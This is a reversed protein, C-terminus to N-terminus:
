EPLDLDWNVLVGYAYELDGIFDADDVGEALEQLRERHQETFLSAAANTADQSSVPRWVDYGNSGAHEKLKDISISEEKQSVIETVTDKVAESEKWPEGGQDLISYRVGSLGYGCHPCVDPVHDLSEYCDPCTWATGNEVRQTVFTGLPMEVEEQAKGQAWSELHTLLVWLRSLLYAEKSAENQVAWWDPEALKALAEAVAEDGGCADVIARTLSPIYERPELAEMEIGLCKSEEAWPEGIWVGHEEAWEQVSTNYYPDIEYGLMAPSRGLERVQEPSIGVRHMVVNDGFYRKFQEEAGGQVPVHGYYDHDSLCFLHLPSEETVKYTGDWNRLNDTILAEVGSFANNGSMALLIGFGLARAIPQFPEFLGQKEIILIGNLGPVLPEFASSDRSADRMWLKEYTLGERVLNALVASHGQSYTRGWGAKPWRHVRPERGLEEKLAALDAKKFQNKFEVRQAGEVRARAASREDDALVVDASRICYQEFTQSALKFGMFERAKSFYWRQRLTALTGDRLPGNVSNLCATQCIAYARLIAGKDASRGRWVQLKAALDAGQEAAAGMEDAEEQTLEGAEVMAELQEPSTPSLGALALWVPNHDTPISTYGLQELIRYGSGLYARLEDTTAQVKQRAM